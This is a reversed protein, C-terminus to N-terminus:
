AVETGKETWDRDKKEQETLEDITRTEMIKAQVIEVITKWKKSKPYKYGMEKFAHCIHGGIYYITKREEEDFVVKRLTSDTSADRLRRSINIVLIDAFTFVFEALVSDFVEVSINPMASDINQLKEMIIERETLSSLINDAIKLATLILTSPMCFLHSSLLEKFRECIMKVVEQWNSDNQVNKVVELLKFFEEAHLGVSPKSEMIKLVQASVEPALDMINEQSPVRSAIDKLTHGQMHNKYYRMQRYEKGCLKCVAIVPNQKMPLPRKFPSCRSKNRATSKAKRPTSTQGLQSDVSVNMFFSLDRSLEESFSENEAMRLNFFFFICM